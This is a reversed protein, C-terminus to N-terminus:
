VPRDAASHRKRYGIMGLLSAGLLVVTAPEPVPAPNERELWVDFERWSDWNPLAPNNSNGLLDKLEILDALRTYQSPDQPSGDQNYFAFIEGYGGIGDLFWMTDGLGWDDLTPSRYIPLYFNGTSGSFVSNGVTLSFDSINYRYNRIGIDEPYRSGMPLAVADGPIWDRFQDDIYMGGSIPRINQQDDVVSGHASYFYPLAIGSVLVLLILSFVISWVKRLNLKM